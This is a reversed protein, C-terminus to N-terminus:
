SAIDGQSKKNPRPSKNFCPYVHSRDDKICRYFRWNCRVHLWWGNKGSILLFWPNSVSQKKGNTQLKHKHQAPREPKSRPFFFREMDRWSYAGFWARSRGPPRQALGLEQFRPQPQTTGLQYHLIISVIFYKLFRSSKTALTRVLTRVLAQCCSGRARAKWARSSAKDGRSVVGSANSLPQRTLVWAACTVPMGPIRVGWMELIEKVISKTLFLGWFSSGTFGLWVAGQIAVALKLLLHDMSSYITLHFVCSPIAKSKSIHPVTITKRCTRPKWPDSSTWINNGWSDFNRLLLCITCSYNFVILAALSSSSHNQFM